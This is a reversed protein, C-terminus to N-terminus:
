AATTRAAYAPIRAMSTDRQSRDHSCGSPFRTMVPFPLRVLITGACGSTTRANVADSCSNSHGIIFPRCALAPLTDFNIFRQNCSRIPRFSM